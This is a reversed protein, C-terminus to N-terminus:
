DAVGVSITDKNADDVAISALVAKKSDCSEFQQIRYRKM